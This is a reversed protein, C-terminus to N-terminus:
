KEKIKRILLSTFMTIIPLVLMAKQYTQASYVRMGTASQTGQWFIDLLLGLLPQFIIGFASILTNTFGLATGSISNSVREKVVSFM